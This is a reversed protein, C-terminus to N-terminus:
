ATKGTSKFSDLQCLLLWMVMIGKCKFKILNLLSRQVTPTPMIEYGLM